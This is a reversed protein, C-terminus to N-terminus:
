DLLIIYVLSPIYPATLKKNGANVKKIVMAPCYEKLLAVKKKPDSIPDKM